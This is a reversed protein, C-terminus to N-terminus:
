EVGAALAPLEVRNGERLDRAASLLREFVLRGVLQGDELLLPVEQSRVELVAGYRLDSLAIHPPTASLTRLRRKFGDAYQNDM